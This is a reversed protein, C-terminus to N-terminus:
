IRRSRRRSRAARTPEPTPRLRRLLERPQELSRRAHDRDDAPDRGVAILEDLAGKMQTWASKSDGRGHLLYLVPYRKTSGAYGAPLYVNYAITRTSRRRTSAPAGHPKGRRRRQELRRGLAGAPGAAAVRLGRAGTHAPEEDTGGQHHVHQSATRPPWLWSRSRRASCRPTSSRAARSRAREPPRSGSSRRARGSSSTRPRCTPRSSSRRATRSPDGRPRPPRARARARVLPRARRRRARAPLGVAAAAAPRRRRRRQRDQRSGLRAGSRARRDGLPPRGRRALHRRSGSGARDRLRGRSRCGVRDPLQGPATDGARGGPPRGQARRDRSLQLVSVAELDDADGANVRVYVPKRRPTSAAGRPRGAGGGEGGARGRGRPRRDGRAGGLRDGERGPRPPRRPRLALHAAPRDSSGTRVCDGLEAAGIGLEEFM